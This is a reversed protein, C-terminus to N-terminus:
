EMTSLLDTLGKLNVPKVLFGAVNKYQSSQDIDYQSTSSSLIYVKHNFNNEDMIDLFKWGNIEPMNLDLFIIDPNSDAISNIAQEPQTYDVIDYQPSVKQIMKKMVFNAMTADDVLMIKKRM